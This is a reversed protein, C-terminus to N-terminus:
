RWAYRDRWSVWTVAQIQAPTVHEGVERSLIRAARTYAESLAAYAAKGPQPREAEAHRIGYAVDIAHRDVTVNEDQGASLINRYFATVKQGGVVAEAPEGALIRQAKALNAKLVGTAEGQACVTRAVTVNRAWSLMPSLVAIIAATSEVPLGTAESMAVAEAHAEAYWRMGQARHEDTAARFERTVNRTYRTVPSLVNSM